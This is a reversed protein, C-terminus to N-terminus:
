RRGSCTSWGRSAAAPPHAVGRGTHHPLRARYRQGHRRDRGVAGRRERNTPRACARAHAAQYRLIAALQAADAARIAELPSKPASPRFIRM